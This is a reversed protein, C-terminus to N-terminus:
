DELAVALGLARLLQENEVRYNPNMLIASTVGRQRLQDPNVIPHGTGPLFRGQKHPNLDIVCDILECTPDLLNAFTAGKAGAGWIATRGRAPARLRSTWGARWASEAAAFARALDPVCAPDPSGGRVAGTEPRAELWLYQGGFTRSVEVTVFGARAFATVLSQASFLSCHEYFFDWGVRDHLIWELSPTEFFVRAQPSGELAARVTALLALPDAVHEIVHRCIVVDAHTAACTPAYRERRVHLRGELAVEPGSYSPDFGWGRSTPDAAVLQRLFAGDGCGVEVVRAGRVGREDVLHTILGDVHAKFAPSHSQSNDYDAGYDLLGPDFARNFVFGCAACCCMDLDARRIGLAAQRSAMVLNQHVPVDPRRLFSDGVPAECIPCTASM